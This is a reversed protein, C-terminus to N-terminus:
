ADMVSLHIQYACVNVCHTLCPYWKFNKLGSNWSSLKQPSTCGAVLCQALTVGVSNMENGWPYFSSFVLESLTKSKRSKFDVM